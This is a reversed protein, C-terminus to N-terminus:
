SEGGGTEKKIIVERMGSKVKPSANRIIMEGDRKGDILAVADRKREKRTQATRRAGMSKFFPSLGAHVTEAGEVRKYFYFRVTDYFWLADKYFADSTQMYFNVACELLQNSFNLFSLSKDFNEGDQRFKEITLKQPLFQPSQGAHALATKTFGLKKVGVGRKRQRDRPGLLEVYPEADEIASKISATIKDIVDQPMNAFIAARGYREDAAKEPADEKKKANMTESM